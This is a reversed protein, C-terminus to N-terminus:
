SGSPVVIGRTECWLVVDSYPGLNLWDLESQVLSSQSAAVSFTGWDQVLYDFMEGEKSERRQAAASGRPREICTRHRFSNRIRSPEGSSLPFRFLPAGALRGFDGM